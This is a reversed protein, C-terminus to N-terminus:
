ATALPPTIAKIKKVCPTTIGSSCGHIGRLGNAAASLVRVWRRTESFLMQNGHHEAKLRVVALANYSVHHILASPNM